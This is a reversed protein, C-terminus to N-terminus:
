DSLEHNGALEEEKCLEKSAKQFQHCTMLTCTETTADFCVVVDGSNIQRRVQEVKAEFGVESNGYDTGERAVFEEIVATLTEAPLREPPIEIM